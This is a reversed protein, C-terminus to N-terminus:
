KTQQIPMGTFQLYLEGQQSYLWQSLRQWLPRMSEPNHVGRGLVVTQRQKQQKSGGAGASARRLGTAGEWGSWSNAGDNKNNNSIGLSSYNYNHSRLGGHTTTRGRRRQLLLGEGWGQLLGEM